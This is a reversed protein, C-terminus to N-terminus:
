CLVKRANDSGCAAINQRFDDVISIGGFDPKTMELSSWVHRVTMFATCYLQGRCLSVQDLAPGDLSCFLVLVCSILVGFWEHIHMSGCGHVCPMRARAMCTVTRM